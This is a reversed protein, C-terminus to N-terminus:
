TEGRQSLGLGRLGLSHVGQDLLREPLPVDRAHRNRNHLTLADDIQLTVTDLFKASRTGDTRIRQERHGTTRLGECAEGDSHHNMVALHRPVIEDALMDRKEVKRIGEGIGVDRQAIQESVTGADAAM